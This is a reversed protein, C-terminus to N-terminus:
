HPQIGWLASKLKIYAKRQMKRPSPVATSIGTANTQAFPTFHRM